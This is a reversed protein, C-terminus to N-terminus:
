IGYTRLGRIGASLIAKQTDFYRQLFEPDRRYGLDNILIAQSLETKQSTRLRVPAGVTLLSGQELRHHFAGKGAEAYFLELNLPDLIVAVQVTKNVALSILVCTCRM